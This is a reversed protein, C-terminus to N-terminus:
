RTYHTTISPSQAEDDDDHEHDHAHDGSVHEALAAAVEIGAHQVCVILPQDPVPLVRVGASTPVCALMSGQLDYTVHLYYVKGCVLCGHQEGVTQSDSM